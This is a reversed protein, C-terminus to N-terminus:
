DPESGLLSDLQDLDASVYYRTKANQVRVSTPKRNAQVEKLREEAADARAEYRDASMLADAYAENLSDLTYRLSGDVEPCKKVRDVTLGGLLLGLLLAAAAVYILTKNM